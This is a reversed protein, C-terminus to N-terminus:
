RLAANLKHGTNFGGGKREGLMGDLTGAGSDVLVRSM